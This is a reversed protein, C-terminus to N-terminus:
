CEIYDCSVVRGLLLAESARPRDRRHLNTDTVLELCIETEGLGNRIESSPDIQNGISDARNDILRTFLVVSGISTNHESRSNLLDM